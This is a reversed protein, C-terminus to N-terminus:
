IADVYVWHGNEKCFRSHEHLVEEQNNEIYFAKFEVTGMFDKEVGLTTQVIELELWKVTKSWQEIELAEKRSPRQTSHHSRQLYDINGM